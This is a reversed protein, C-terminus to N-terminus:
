RPYHNHCLRGILDPGISVQVELGAGLDLVLVLGTGPAFELRKAVKVGWPDNIIIVTPTVIM